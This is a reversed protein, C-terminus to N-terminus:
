SEGESWLCAIHIIECLTAAIQISFLLKIQIQGLVRVYRNAFSKAVGGDRLLVQQETCHTSETHEISGKSLGM